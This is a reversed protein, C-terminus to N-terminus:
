QKDKSYAQLLPIIIYKRIIRYLEFILYSDIILKDKPTITKVKGNVVQYPYNYARLIKNAKYIHQRGIQRKKIFFMKKHNEIYTSTPDETSKVDFFTVLEHGHKKILQSLGIEYKVIIKIKSSEEKVNQFFDLFYNQKFIEARVIFFYSQIHTVWAPVINGSEDFKHAYYNKTLGFIAPNGLAHKKSIVKDLPKYPGIVSDNAFIIENIQEFYPSSKLLDLGISYSGFDYKNHKIFRAFVVYPKLKALEADSIPNDAVFIIGDCIKLLEHLYFILSDEITYTELHAVFICIRKHSIIVSATRSYFQSKLKDSM